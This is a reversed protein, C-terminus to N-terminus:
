GHRERGGSARTERRCDQKQQQRGHGQGACTADRAPLPIPPGEVPALGAAYRPQMAAATAPETQASHDVPTGYRWLSWWKRALGFLLLALALSTWGLALGVTLM